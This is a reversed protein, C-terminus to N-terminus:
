AHRGECEARDCISCEVAGKEMTQGSERAVLREITRESELVASGASLDDIKPMHITLYDEIADLSGRLYATEYANAVIRKLDEEMPTGVAHEITSVYERALFKSKANAASM